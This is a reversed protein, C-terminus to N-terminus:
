NRDAQPAKGAAPAHSRREPGDYRVPKRGWTPKLTRSRVSRLRFCLRFCLRCDLRIRIRIHIRSPRPGRPTPRSGEPSGSTRPKRSSGLMLAHHGAARENRWPGGCPPPTHPTHEPQQRPQQTHMPEARGNRRGRGRVPVPHGRRRGHHGRDLRVAGPVIVTTAGPMDMVRVRGTRGSRQVPRGRGRRRSGRDAAGHLGGFRCAHACRAFPVTPPRRGIQGFELEQPDLFGRRCTRGSLPATGGNPM